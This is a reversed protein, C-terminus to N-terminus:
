EDGPTNNHNNSNNNIWTVEGGPLSYLCCLKSNGASACIRSSQSPIPHSPLAQSARTHPSAQLLPPFRSQAADAANRLWCKPLHWSSSGLGESEGSCGGGSRGQPFASVDCPVAPPSNTCFTLSQPIVRSHSLLLPPTSLLLVSRKSRNNGPQRWRARRLSGPVHQWSLVLVVEAWRGGQQGRFASCLRKEGWGLRNGCEQEESGPM